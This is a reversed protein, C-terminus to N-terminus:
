GPPFVYKWRQTRVMRQSQYGWVEGHHECYVSNPWKQVIDGRGWGVLSKGDIPTSLQSGSWEVFTPMLDVSRTFANIRGPEIWERPGKIILPIRFVEDYMTGAKEFHSKPGDNRITQGVNLASLRRIMIPGIVLAILLATLTSLISRLTLYEFVHFAHYFHALYKTLWFLM